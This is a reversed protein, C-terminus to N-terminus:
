RYDCNDEAMDSPITWHIKRQTNKFPCIVFSQRPNRFLMWRRKHKLKALTCIMMFQMTVARHTPNQFPYGRKKQPKLQKVRLRGQTSPKKLSIPILREVLWQQFHNCEYKEVRQVIYTKVRGTLSWLSKPHARDVQHCLAVHCHHRGTSEEAASVMKMASTIQMTSVPHSEM